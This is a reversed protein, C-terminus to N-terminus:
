IAFLLAFLNLNKYLKRAEVLRNCVYITLLIINILKQFIYFNFTSVNSRDRHLSFHKNLTKIIITSQKKQQM